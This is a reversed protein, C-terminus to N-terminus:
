WVNGACCTVLVPYVNAGVTSDDNETVSSMMFDGCSYNAAPGEDDDDDDDEAYQGSATFREMDEVGAACQQVWVM